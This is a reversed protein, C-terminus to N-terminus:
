AAVQERGAKIALKEAVRALRICELCAGNSVYRQVVHGAKCPKGTYYVSAGTKIADSRLIVKKKKM